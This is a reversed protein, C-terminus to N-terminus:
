FEIIEEWRAVATDEIDKQELRKKMRGVPDNGYFDKYDQLVAAKIKALVDARVSPICKVLIEAKQNPVDVDGGIWVKSDVGQLAAQLKSDAKLLKKNLFAENNDDNGSGFLADSVTAKKDSSVVAAYKRLSREFRNALRMIREVSRM